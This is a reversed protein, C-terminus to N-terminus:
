AKQVSSRRCSASRGGDALESLRELERLFRVATLLPQTAATGHFDITRLLTPLFRRV